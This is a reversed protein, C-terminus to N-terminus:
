MHWMLLWMLVGYPLAVSVMGGIEPLADICSCAIAAGWSYGVIWVRTCQRQKLLYSCVEVFDLQESHGHLSRWGTSKGVFRANYRCVTFGRSALTRYIGVVVNNNMDGGLLPM